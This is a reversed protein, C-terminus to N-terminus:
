DGDAQHPQQLRRHRRRVHRQMPEVDEIGALSVGKQILEVRRCMRQGLRRQGLQELGLCGAGGLRHRHHNVILREGVGFQVRPGIAEGMVQDPKSHPRLAQHSDANFPRERHSNRDEADELCPRANRGRSGPYGAARNPKM